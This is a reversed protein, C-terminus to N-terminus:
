ATQVVVFYEDGEKAIVGDAEMRLLYEAAEVPGLKLEIHLASPECGALVRAVAADYLVDVKGPKQPAPAKEDDDALLDGQPSEEAPAGGTESVKPAILSLTIDHKQLECLPGVQETNPHLYMRFKIGVRGEDQISFQFKDVQVDQLVMEESFDLDAPVVARYGPSKLPWCLPKDFKFRPSPLHGTLDEQGSIAPKYLAPRLEPDFKDLEDNSALYEVYISMGLKTEDSNGMNEPNTSVSTVRCDVESVEFM